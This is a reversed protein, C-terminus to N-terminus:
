YINQSNTTNLLLVVGIDDLGAGENLQPVKLIDPWNSNQDYWVLNFMLTVWLGLKGICLAHWRIVTFHISTIILEIVM